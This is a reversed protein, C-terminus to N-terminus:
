RRVPWLEDVSVGLARALQAQAKPAPVFGARIHGVYATALGAKAALKKVTAIGARAMLRDFADRDFTPAGTSM